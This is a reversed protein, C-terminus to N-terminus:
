PGGGGGLTSRRRRERTEEWRYQMAIATVVIVDILMENDGYIRLVGKKTFSFGKREFIAIVKGECSLEKDSSWVYEKGNYEFTSKSSFWGTPPLISVTSSNRGSSNPYLDIVYKPHFCGSKTITSLKSTGRYVTKPPASFLAWPAKITYLIDQKTQDKVIRDRSGDRYIHLEM